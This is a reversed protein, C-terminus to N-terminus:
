HHHQQQQRQLAVGQLREILTDLKMEARCARWPAAFIICSVLCRRMGMGMGMEMRMGMEVGLGMGIIMRM